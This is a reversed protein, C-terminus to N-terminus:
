KLWFYPSSNKLFIRLSIESASDRSSKLTSVSTKPIGDENLEVLNIPAGDSINWLIINISLVVPQLFYSMETLLWMPSRDLEYWHDIINADTKRRTVAATNQSDNCEKSYSKRQRRGGGCGRELQRFSCSPLEWVDLRLHTANQKVLTGHRMQRMGRRDNRNGVGM